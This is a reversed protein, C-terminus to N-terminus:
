SNKALGPNLEELIELSSLGDYINEKLWQYYNPWSQSQIFLNRQRTYEFFAQLMSQDASSLEPFEWDAVDLGTGRAIRIYMHHWYWPLRSELDTRQELILQKIEKVFNEQKAKERYRDWFGGTRKSLGFTLDMRLQREEGTISRLKNYKECANTAGEKILNILDELAKSHADITPADYPDVFTASMGMPVVNGQWPQNYHGPNWKILKPEALRTNGVVELLRQRPIENDVLRSNFVYGNGQRHYLRILFRWGWDEGHFESAGIIEKEPDVYRSPCVWASDATENGSDVWSDNIQSVLVRKLGSVDLFLDASIETGNELVIKTVNKESTEISNVSSSIHTIKSHDRTYVLDKLYGITKEADLHYAIGQKKRFLYKGNPTYPAWPNRLFCNQETTEMLMDNLNKDSDKNLSLWSLLMGRDNPQKNWPEYFDLYDFENCFNTLSSLKYNHIKGWCNLVDNDYFNQARVGYKYIAGTKRLFDRDDTIGLLREFILHGDFGTAEGVGITAHAQSDIIVIEVEPLHHQLSAVTFWGGFGGGVIVIKKIM